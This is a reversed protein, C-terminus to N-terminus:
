PFYTEHLVFLCVSCVVFTYLLYDSSQVSVMVIPIGHVSGWGHSGQSSEDGSGCVGICVTRCFIGCEDRLVVLSYLVRPYNGSYENNHLPISGVACVAEAASLYCAHTPLDSGGPVSNSGLLKQNDM